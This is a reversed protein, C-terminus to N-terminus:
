NCFCSVTEKVVAEFTPLKKISFLGCVNTGTLYEGKKNIGVYGDFWSGALKTNEPCKFSLSKVKESGAPMDSSGWVSHTEWEGYAIEPLSYSSSSSSTSSSASSRNRLREERRKRRKDKGRSWLASAVGAGIALTKLSKQRQKKAEIRRLEQIESNIKNQNSISRYQAVIVGERVKAFRQQQSTKSDILVYGNSSCWKNIADINQVRKFTATYYSFIGSGSKEANQLSREQSFLFAPTLFLLLFLINKM